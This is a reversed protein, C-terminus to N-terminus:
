RHSDCFRFTEMFDTAVEAREVNLNFQRRDLRSEKIASIQKISINKIISFSAQSSSYNQECYQYIERTIRLREQSLKRIEDENKKLEDLLGSHHKDYGSQRTSYRLLYGDIDMKSAVKRLITTPKNNQNKTIECALLPTSCIKCCQVFDLDIMKLNPIRRHWQSFDLDRYGSREINGM